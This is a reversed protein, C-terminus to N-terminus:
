SRGSLLGSTSAVALIACSLLVLPWDAGWDGSSRHIAAAILQLGLSAIILGRLVKPSSTM